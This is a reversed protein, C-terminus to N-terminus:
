KGLGAESFDEPSNINTLIRKEALEMKKTAFTKLFQDIRIEPDSKDIIKQVVAPSFLVPHGSKCEFAPIIVDADKKYQFLSKLVEVTTFPNDINQFFCSNGTKLKQAGTQLSYFRGKEPFSNIVLEVERALPIELEVILNYLEKNVVVIVQKVGSQCYTGTIKQIFTEYKSFKLLAKSEGMRVSSGASLIVCSTQSLLDRGM